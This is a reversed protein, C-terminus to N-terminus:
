QKVIKSTSSGQKSSVKVFYIGSSLDAINIESSVVSNEITNNIVRGNLDTIQIQNILSNNSSTVTIYNNAPNPYVDFNQVENQNTALDFTDVSFTDIGIIDSRQGNPGGNIVNYRFAFKCQTPASLGTVTYSYRTWGTPYATLTQAPNVTALVITYDGIDNPGLSPPTTFPGQTSMRLELRDAKLASTLSSPTGCRTYFSIVNGDQVTINPSILWNSIIAGTSATSTTSTKGVTAFSNSGGAQGVPISSIQGAAIVTAGFPNAQPAPSGVTVVSYTPIVWLGASSPLTSQNIKSWGTTNGNFGFNYINQSQAIYFGFLFLTSLLIKKM